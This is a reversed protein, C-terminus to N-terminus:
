RRYKRLSNLNRIILSGVDPAVKAEEIKKLVALLVDAGEGGKSQIFLRATAADYREFIDGIMHLQRAAIDLKKPILGLVDEIVEDINKGM